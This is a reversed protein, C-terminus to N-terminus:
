EFRANLPATIRFPFRPDKFGRAAAWAKAERVLGKGEDGGLLKGLLNMAAARELALVSIEPSSLLTRLTHVAGDHQERMEQVQAVLLLERVRASPTRLKALGKLQRAAHIILKDRTEGSADLAADLACHARIPLLAGRTFASRGLLSRGVENWRQELYEHAAAGGQTRKINVKSIIHGLHQTSFPQAPWGAICADVTREAAEIEGVNLQCNYAGGLVVLSTYALRDGRDKTDQLWQRAFTEHTGSEGQLLLTTLLNTRVVGLPWSAGVCDERYGREAAGLLERARDLQVRFFAVLGGNGNCVAHLYPDGARDALERARELCRDVLSSGGESAEMFAAEYALALSLHRIDRVRLALRLHRSTLEVGRMMDVWGLAPALGFLRDLAARDSASIQSDPLPDVWRSSFKLVVRHLGLRMLARGTTEAFVLDTERFLARMESLGLDVEGAQLLAQASQQRLAAAQQPDAGDLASLYAHAAEASRGANALATGRAVRWGHLRDRDAHSSLLLLEGYLAAEQDFAYMEEAAQAARELWPIARKPEGAGLWHSGIRAPSEPSKAELARALRAHNQARSQPDLASSSAERIRDHYCEVAGEGFGRVLHAEGLESLSQMLEEGSLDLAHRLLARPLPTSAVSLLQLLTRAALSLRSIRRLIAAELTAGKEQAAGQELATRVLESLFMPHGESERVVVDISGESLRGGAMSRTLSRAAELDMASLTLRETRPANLLTRLSAGLSREFRELPRATALFLCHPSDDAMLLAHLLALSDTDAWQLDDICILLPVRTSLGRILSLLGDFVLRRQATPEAPIRGGAAAVLPIRELVPFARALLNGQAPVFRRYAEEDLGAIVLSLGDVIGDFAKFPVTEREYCAGRLVRLQPDSDQSASAFHHMLTSKGLGSDGEIICLRAEGKRADAFTQALRVLQTERGLPLAGVVPVASNALPPVSDRRTRLSLLVDTASPRAAPDVAMLRMSLSCLDEPLGAMLSQPPAPLGRQKQLLVEMASGYFPLHGTLAEYLMVGLAYWDATPEIASGSQAQEPAMYDATGFLGQDQSSLGATRQAVVGFDLLVVRGEPTVRVNDPKLDRHVLGERHVASLALTLARIADRLRQEDFGQSAYGPRVYASFSEGELLEMTFFWSGEEEFLEYLRVVHEHRLDALARFERKFRLLADAGVRSLQKLAVRMQLERDYAEYVAGYGGEGVGRVLEFRGNAFSFARSLM